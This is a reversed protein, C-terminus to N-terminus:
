SQKGKRQKLWSRFKGGRWSPLEHTKAWALDLKDPSASKLIAKIQTTLSKVDELALGHGYLDLVRKAAMQRIFPLAFLDEFTWWENGHSDKKLLYTTLDNGTLTNKYVRVPTMVGAIPRTDTKELKLM